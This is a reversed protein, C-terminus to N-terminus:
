AIKANYCVTLGLNGDKLSKFLSLLGCKSARALTFAKKLSTCKKELFFFFLNKRFILGFHGVKRFFILFYSLCESNQVTFGSIYVTIM